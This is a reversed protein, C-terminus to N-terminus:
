RLECGLDRMQRFTRDPEVSGISGEVFKLWEAARRCSSEKDGNLMHLLSAHYYLINEPRSPQDSEAFRYHWSKQKQLCDEVEALLARVTSHKELWPVAFRVISSAASALDDAPWWSDNSFFRLGSPCVYAWFVYNTKGNLYPDSIGVTAWVQFTNEHLNKKAFITQEIGNLQRELIHKHITFGFPQVESVWNRLIKSM